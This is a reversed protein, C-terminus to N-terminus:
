AQALNLGGFTDSIDTPFIVVRLVLFIVNRSGSL